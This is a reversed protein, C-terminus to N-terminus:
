GVTLTRAPDDADSFGTRSVGDAFTGGPPRGFMSLDELRKRPRDANVSLPTTGTQAAALSPALALLSVGKSFTRRNM